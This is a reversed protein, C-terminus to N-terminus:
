LLLTANPKSKQILQEWDQLHRASFPIRNLRTFINPEITYIDSLRQGKNILLNKKDM